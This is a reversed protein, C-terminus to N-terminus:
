DGGLSQRALVRGNGSEAVSLTDKDDIRNRTLAKKV